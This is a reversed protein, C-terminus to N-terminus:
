VTDWFLCEKPKGYSLHVDVSKSFKPLFTVSLAPLWIKGSWSVSRCQRAFCPFVFIADNTEFTTSSNDNLWDISSKTLKCSVNVSSYVLSRLDQLWSLEARAEQPWLEPSIFNLKTCCSNFQTAYSTCAHATSGFPLYYQQRCRTQYCSANTSISYYSIRGISDMDVLKESWARCLVVGVKSVIVSVAVSM